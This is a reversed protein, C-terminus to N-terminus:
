VLRKRLIASEMSFYLSEVEILTKNNGNEKSWIEVESVNEVITTRYLLIFLVSTCRMLKRVTNVYQMHVLLM